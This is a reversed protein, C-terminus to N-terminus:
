SAVVFVFCLTSFSPLPTATAVILLDIEDATINACKLAAEGAEIALSATTEGPEAIRREKIGTREVIWENSTEVRKELDSNTLRNEPIAIGWGTIAARM